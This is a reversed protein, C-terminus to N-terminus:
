TLEKLLKRALAVRPLSDAIADANGFNLLAEIAVILAKNTYPRPVNIIGGIGASGVPM